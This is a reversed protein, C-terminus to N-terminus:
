VAIEAKIATHSKYNLLKIDEYKFDFINKIDKNLELVPLEYPERKLQENVQEIHNLYIHADGINAVLEDPVHNTVQAIMHLLLAYSAINFPAGLFLDNSRMSYMLSLYRKGDVEKSYLQWSHHCPYLKMKDLEAVNWASVILRRSDPNRKLEDIVNKIQNIPEVEEYINTNVYCYEEVMYKYQKWNTWQAGYLRGINGDADAWDDWIHIDRDTLYKTSTDGRLFWLLEEVVGRWFVKKTTVLPFGDRMSFRLLVSFVSKTGIGTRDSKTVGHELVCRLLKLYQKDCNNSM